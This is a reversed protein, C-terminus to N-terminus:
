FTYGIFIFIGTTLAAAAAFSETGNLYYATSFIVLASASLKFAIEAGSKQTPIPPQTVIVTPTSSAAITIKSTVPVSLTDAWIPISSLLVVQFIASLILKSFM